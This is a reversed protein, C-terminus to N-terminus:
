VFSEFNRSIVFLSCFCLKLLEPLGILFFLRNGHLFESDEQYCPSEKKEKLILRYAM